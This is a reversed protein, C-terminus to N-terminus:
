FVPLIVPIRKFTIGHKLMFDQDLACKDAYIIYHEPRSELKNIALSALFDMDLTTIRDVEYYFAYFATNEYGLAYVSVPNQSDFQARTPFVRVILWM